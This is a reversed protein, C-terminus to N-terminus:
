LFIDIKGEEEVEAIGLLKGNNGKVAYVDANHDTKHLFLINQVKENRGRIRLEDQVQERLISIIM